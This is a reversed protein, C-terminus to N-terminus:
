KVFATNAKATRVWSRKTKKSAFEFKMGENLLSDIEKQTKAVKLRERIGTTTM